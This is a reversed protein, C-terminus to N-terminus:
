TKREFDIYAFDVLPSVDKAGFFNKADTQNTFGLKERYEKFYKSTIEINM